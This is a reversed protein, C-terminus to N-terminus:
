KPIDAEFDFNIGDVIESMDELQSVFQALKDSAILMGTLVTTINGMDRVEEIHNHIDTNVADFLVEAADLCMKGKEFQSKWSM